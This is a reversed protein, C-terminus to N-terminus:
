RIKDLFKAFVVIMLLVVGSIALSVSVLLAYALGVGHDFLWNLLKRM